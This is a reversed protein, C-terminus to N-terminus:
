NSVKTDALSYTLRVRKGSTGSGILAEPKDEQNTNVFIPSFLENLKETAGAVDTDKYTTGITLTFVEYPNTIKKNYKYHSNYNTDSLALIRYADLFQEWTYTPDVAILDYSYRTTTELHTYTTSKAFTTYNKITEEVKNNLMVSFTNYYTFFYNDVPDYYAIAEGTKGWRYRYAIHGGTIEGNTARAYVFAPVTWGEKEAGGVIHEKYRNAATIGNNPYLENLKTVVTGIYDEYKYKAEFNAREEKTLEPKIEIHYYVPENVVSQSQNNNQPETPKNTKKGCGTICILCILLALTIKKM